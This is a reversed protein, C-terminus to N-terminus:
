LSIMVRCVRFLDIIRGAIGTQAAMALAASSRAPQEAMGVLPEPDEPPPMDPPPEEPSFVEIMWRVVTGPAPPYRRDTRHDRFVAKYLSNGMTRRGAEVPALSEGFEDRAFEAGVEELRAQGAVALVARRKEM